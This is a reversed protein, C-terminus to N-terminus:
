ATILRVDEEPLLIPMSNYYANALHRAKHMWCIYTCRKYMDGYLEYDWAVCWPCGLSIPCNFCEDTSQARRTLPKLSDMGSLWEERNDASGLIVPNRDIRMFRVCPYAVGDADFIVMNGNVGCCNTNDDPPSPRCIEKRFDSIFIDNRELERLRNAIKILEGYYTRAHDITWEADTVLNIDIKKIGEELFFDTIEYLRMVNEPSVTVRPAPGDPFNRSYHRMAEVAFNFSGSGDAFVRCSDHMNQPGDVSICLSLRDKYQYLFDQVKPNFYAIGNTSLSISWNDGWPTDIERNREAFRNCVASIADIAMLPEGGIFGLCIGDTAIPERDFLSDVIKLATETPMNKNTKHKQFCYHCSLQCSETVQFTIIKM